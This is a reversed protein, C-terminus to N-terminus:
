GRPGSRRKPPTAPVVSQGEGAPVVVRAVANTRNGYFDECGVWVDYHRDTRIAEGRLELTLDGTLRWDYEKENEDDGLNIDQNSTVAFVSCVPRPDLDDFASVEIMVEYIEGSAKLVDPTAYLKEILPAAPDRVEVQFSARGRMGWRDIATCVVETMGIPFLSGSEPNCAVEPEPDDTGSVEVKYEVVQGELSGADVGIGNPTHVTLEYWKVEGLVEVDFSGSTVNAELDTATCQVATVGIPFLDGSRPLCEPLSEGWIEDWAGVEYKVLAGERSEAKVVIAERPMILEPGVDDHVLVTFSAEATEKGNSGSCTVISSGMKFFAGSEPLCKIDSIEAEGGAPFVDYKVFAGERNIPQIRLVEPVIIVFPFFRFGRVEFTVVNSDGTGGRVYVGYFGSTQVVAEPVWTVVSTTFNASTFREFHGAPGDFVVVNGLGTGNITLFHESSNVKVMAPDISTITGAAASGACLLFALVSISRKM